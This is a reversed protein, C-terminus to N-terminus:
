PMTPPFSASINFGVRIDEALYVNDVANSFSHRNLFPFICLFLAASKTMPSLIKNGKGYSLSFKSVFLGAEPWRLMNSRVQERESRKTRRRISFDKWSSASPMGRHLLM